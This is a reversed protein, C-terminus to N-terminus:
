LVLCFHLSAVIVRQIQMENSPACGQRSQTSGIDAVQLAASANLVPVYSVTGGMPSM